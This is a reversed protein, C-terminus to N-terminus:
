LFLIEFNPAQIHKLNAAFSLDLDKSQFNSLKQNYPRLSKTETNPKLKKMYMYDPHLNNLSKHVLILKSQRLIEDM